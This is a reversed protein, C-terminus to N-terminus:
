GDALDPIWFEQGESEVRRLGRATLDEEALGLYTFHPLDSVVTQFWGHRALLRRVAPESYEAVDFALMALHQSTGPAAVSHLISKRLDKSFFIGEAELKLVAAVQERSPLSRVREAEDRSLRGRGCWHELAPDCRSRWLRLSDDFTRRGAEPGGRPTLTLGLRRGEARARLLAEMAAPQLGIELGELTEVRWGAERQFREVEEESEFVCVPPLAVGEAVFMAGYEALVRWAVSDGAPCCTELGRGHRAFAREVAAFFARRGGGAAGM